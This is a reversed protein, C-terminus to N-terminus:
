MRGRLELEYGGTPGYREGSGFVGAVTALCWTIPFQDTSVTFCAHKINMTPSELWVPRGQFVVRGNEYAFGPAFGSAKIDTATIGLTFVFQGSYKEPNQTLESAPVFKPAEAAYTFSSGTMGTAVVIGALILLIKKM